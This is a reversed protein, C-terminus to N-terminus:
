SSLIGNAVLASIVGALTGGSAKPGQAGKGNCGFGGAVYVDGQDSVAVVDTTTGASRRSFAFAYGSGDGIYYRGTPHEYSFTGGSMSPTLAAPGAVRLGASLAAAGNAALTTFAGSNPTTKGIRGPREWDNPAAVQVTTELRLEELEARLRPVIALEQRAGAAMIQLEELEARLQAAAALADRTQATQAELEARLEAVQNAGALAAASALEVALDGMNGGSSGGVRTLLDGLARMFEPTM